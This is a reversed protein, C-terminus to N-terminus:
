GDWLAPQTEYSVYLPHRPQGAKTFGLTHLTLGERRLMAEVEAARGRHSGHIGWGCLVFNGRCHELIVADARARGGYPDVAKKMDKPKAAVIPFLNVFVVGDLNMVTARRQLRENTPDNKDKHGISPNLAVSVLRRGPGWVHGMAYRYGRCCSFEDFSSKFLDTLNFDTM